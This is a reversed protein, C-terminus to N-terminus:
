ELLHTFPIKRGKLVIAVFPGGSPTTCLMHQSDTLQMYPQQLCQQFEVGGSLDGLLRLSPFNSHLVRDLGLLFSNHEPLLVPLDVM